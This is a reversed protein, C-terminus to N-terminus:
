RYFFPFENCEKSSKQSQAMKPYFYFLEETCSVAPVKVLLLRMWQLVTEPPSNLLKTNTLRFDAKIGTPLHVNICVSLLTGHLCKQEM